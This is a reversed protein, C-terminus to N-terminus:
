GSRKGLHRSIRNGSGRRDPELEDVHQAVDEIRTQTSLM